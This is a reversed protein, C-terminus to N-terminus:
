EARKIMKRFVQPDGDFQLCRRPCDDLTVGGFNVHSFHVIPNKEVIRTQTQIWHNNAFSFLALSEAESFPRGKEPGRNLGQAAIRQKVNSEANVILEQM